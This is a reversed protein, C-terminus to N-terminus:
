SQASKVSWTARGLYLLFPKRTARFREHAPMWSESIAEVPLVPKSRSDAAREIGRPHRVAAEDARVRVAAAAM